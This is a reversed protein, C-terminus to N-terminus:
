HSLLPEFVSPPIRGPYNKDGIIFTPTGRVRLDRGAKVDDAVSQRAEESALCVELTGINIGLAAALEGAKVPEKRRGNAFLYDNAEWFRNQHGACHALVAYDFAFPHSRLPFHRHILRIKDPVMEVWSRVEAHGRKCYPCQYDSFEVIELAPRRAGIWHAGEATQGVLLGGPGTSAEILWYIPIFIWLLAVVAAFSFTYICVPRWKSVVIGLEKKLALLPGTGQMKLDALSLGCLIINVAYTATCVICLSKILFHSIYFM